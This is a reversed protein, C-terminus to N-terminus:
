DSLKNAERMASEVMCGIPTTAVTESTPIFPCFPSHHPICLSLPSPPFFPHYPSPISLSVLISICSFFCFIHCLPNFGKYQPFWLPLGQSLRWSATTRSWCVHTKRYTRSFTSWLVKPSRWVEQIRKEGRIGCWVCLCVHTHTCVSLQSPNTFAASCSPSFLDNHPPPPPPPPPPPLPPVDCPIFDRYLDSFCHFLHHQYFCSTLIIQFFVPYNFLGPPQNLCKSSSLLSFTSKASSCTSM